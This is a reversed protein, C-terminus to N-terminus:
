SIGGHSDSFGAARSGKIVQDGFNISNGTTAITVYEMTNVTAPSVYPNDFVGRIKNSAGGIPGGSVTTSVDGFDTADGTSAITIFDITNVATPTEGGCFVGRTESCVSGFRGRGATLNGFDTADGTSAITVYDITDLGNGAPDRGGAFVSRTPSSVGQVNRRVVTLDGFNAANGKTAITIYDIINTLSPATGGGFIGRTENSSSGMEHRSETNDGFDVSNSTQAITIFDIANTNAPSGTYGSAMVGRTSSGVGGVGIRGTPLDGFDLSNGESQIQIFTIANTRPSDGGAFIGRGRGREETRGTPFCMYAQSNMSIAGNFTNGADVGFPPIVKPADGYDAAKISVASFISTGSANANVRVLVYTTSVTATFQMTKIGNSGVSDATMFGGANAGFSSSNNLYVALNSGPTGTGGSFHVKLEYRQGIVTTVAQWAYVPPDSSDDNTLVLSGNTVTMSGENADSLTWGTTGNNFSHNTVLEVSSDAHRGYGTITKGTAEQLPNDSDQCCLLVTKDNDSTYHVTLPSTPPTFYNSSYVLHGICIRVNSLYGRLSDYSTNHLGIKTTFPEDYDRNNSVSWKEEGNAYMKLTNASYDRQFVIHEYVGSVPAHGTDRWAGTDTYVHITGSLFSVEFRKLNTTSTLTIIGNYDTNNGGQNIWFEITFDGTGFGTGSIVEGSALTLYSYTGDFFVSGDYANRGGEGCLNNTRLNAM